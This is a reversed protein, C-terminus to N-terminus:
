RKTYKSAKKGNWTVTSRVKRGDLTEEEFEKDLEFKVTQTKVSSSTTISWVDDNVEITVSPKLSNALKRMVFGVGLEKMLPDFNESSILNWVGLLQKSDTSADAAAM